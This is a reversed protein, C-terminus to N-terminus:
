HSLSFLRPHSITSPCQERCVATRFISARSIELAKGKKTQVRAWQNWHNPCITETAIWSNISSTVILHCTWMSNITEITKIKELNCPKILDIIIIRLIYSIKKDATIIMKFSLINNRNFDTKKYIRKWTRKLKERSNYQTWILILKVLISKSNDLEQSICMKKM